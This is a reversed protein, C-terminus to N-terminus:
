PGSRPGRTCPSARFSSAAPASWPSGSSCSRRRRSPALADPVTPGSLHEGSYDDSVSYVLTRASIGGFDGIVIGGAGYLGVYAAVHVDSGITIRGSLICFDDIRVRDGIEIGEPGYLRCHRSIFVDRGCRKLGLGALEASSYFSVAPGQRVAPPATMGVGRGLDPAGQRAPRDPELNERNM